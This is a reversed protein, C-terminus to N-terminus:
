PEAPPDPQPNFSRAVAPHMFILSGTRGDANNIIEATPVVGDPPVANRGPQAPPPIVFVVPRIQARPSSQPLQDFDLDLFAAEGRELDIIRRVVDGTRADRVLNGNLFRFNIVVRSPGSPLNVDNPMITNAASVRLTQGSTLGVMGFSTRHEIVIANAQANVSKPQQLLALVTFTGAIAILFVILLTRKKNM